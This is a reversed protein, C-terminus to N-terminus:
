KQRVTIDALIRPGDQRAGGENVLAGRRIMEAEAERESM